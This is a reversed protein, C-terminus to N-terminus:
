QIRREAFIRCRRKCSHTVIPNNEVSIPEVDSRQVPVSRQLFGSAQGPLYRNLAFGLRKSDKVECVCLYAQLPWWNLILPAVTSTRLAGYLHQLVAHRQGCLESKLEARPLLGTAAHSKKRVPSGGTHPLLPETMTSPVVGPKFLDGLHNAANAAGGLYGNGGVGAVAFVNQWTRLDSAHTYRLTSKFADGKALPSIIIETAEFGATSGGTEDGETEDNWIVIVGNDKFAQSAVIEPVVISLFNDGLAVAEQDTGAPWTQGAYTFNTNLPSHMDNYQDPTIWNFRAVTNNNLDTQLQQLPAYNQAQPNSPSTNPAAATGGNTSLFFVFPNHKAAYNYQHSGDYPNTYDASTGSFSSTPVTYQRKSAVNNTLTGGANNFNQGNTNLLDADEQYSRWTEGKAAMLQGLNPANVINNPYPDNDNLPGTLGAVQYVYNPESPHQNPSVNQYNSAYSVDVSNPNNPTVLSNLFPAAKNGFLQQPSTVGPPQTFNHNELAIYFVDGVQQAQASSAVLLAFVSAGLLDRHQSREIV